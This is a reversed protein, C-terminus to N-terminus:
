RKDGEPRWYRSGDRERALMGRDILDRRLGSVDAHFRMLILNVEKETYSAGPTFAELIYDLIVRLQAEKPPLRRVSGDPNLCQGLVKRAEPSLDPAPTYSEHSRSSFQQGAAKELGTEDLEYSEGRKRLLGAFELFSVHNYADRAPLGLEAAIEALTANRQSLMGVIRLRDANTLAKVLDLLDAPM